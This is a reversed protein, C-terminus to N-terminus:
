KYLLNNKFLPYFVTNINNNNIVLFYLNVISVIVCAIIILANRMNIKGKKESSLTDAFCIYNLISLSIQCRYFDVSYKILPIIILIVINCKLAFDLKKKNGGDLASKSKILYYLLLFLLFYVFIRFLTMRTVRWSVADLKFLLGTVKGSMNIIKGILTITTPTILILGALAIGLSLGIVQKVDFKKAILLFMYILSSSHFMSALIICLVFYTNNKDYKKNSHIFLFRLSFVVISLALTERMQVVDMCFPFILYLGFVFNYNKTFKVVTSSILLLEFAAIIMKYFEFSVGISNFARMILAYGPETMGIFNSSMYFRAKNTIEDANGSSFAYLVWLLMLSIFLVIKSRKKTLDFVDVLLASIYLM